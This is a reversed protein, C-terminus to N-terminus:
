AVQVSSTTQVDTAADAGHSVDCPGLPFHSSGNDEGDGTVTWNWKTPTVVSLSCLRESWGIGHGGSVGAAVTDKTM